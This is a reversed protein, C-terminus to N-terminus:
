ESALRKREKRAENESVPSSAHGWSNRVYTAVAAVQTDNLQWGYAPMAPATPEEATAVSEAGSLVVRLVTTPARASVSASGALNPILYPVGSGDKKHCASCLDAYIAAGAVMMPDGAAVAKDNGAEGSQQKLYTAIAEVDAQKMRSGSLEVVEAMPGAAGAFRNHGKKLYEVIDDKSWNALGGHTGTIDPAFWGQIEYGQLSQRTKDGGLVTKPTHCAGCHGPGRVLYAGRNWEASQSTDPQFEDDDFYLANWAAMASRVSFPFSLQNTEVLNHVPALTNLYARIALIDKKTMRAFYPYPMAPYLHSGDRMRGHRVAADFQEDSWNGIGTQADPTINAALVIGFPTEIPRGGAFPQSRAPDTHCAGCDAVSTLYRGRDIASFDQATSLSGGHVPGRTCSALAMVALALLSRVALGRKRTFSRGLIGSTSNV